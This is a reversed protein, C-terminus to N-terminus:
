QCDGDVCSTAGPCQADTHCGGTCQGALCILGSGDNGPNCAGDSACACGPEITDVSNCASTSAQAGPAPLPSSTVTGVPDSVGTSDDDDGTSDDDDGTTTTPQATPASTTSASPTSAGFGTNAVPKFSQSKLSSVAHVGFQMDLATDAEEITCAQTKASDNWGLFMMVHGSGGVRRVIADGPQLNSFSGLAKDHAGGNSFEATTVGPAALQWAMSVFGSCDTRYGAHQRSQSYPVKADLWQFGRTIATKRAGSTSNLIQNRSLKCSATVKATTADLDEAGVDGEADVASTSCAAAVFFLPALLLIGRM